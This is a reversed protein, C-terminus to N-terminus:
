EDRWHKPLMAYYATLEFKLAPHGAAILDHNVERGPSGVHCAACTEARTTIEETKILGLKVADGTQKQHPWAETVHPGIWQEAPGHCMECSVSDRTFYTEGRQSHDPQPNHCGFCNALRKARTADDDTSRALRELIAKSLENQLTLYSRSHPDKDLWHVYENRQSLPFRPDPDIGGHCASAACSRAGLFKQPQSTALLGHASEIAFAQQEVPEAALVIRNVNTVGFPAISVFALVAPMASRCARLASAARAPLRLARAVFNLGLCLGALPSVSCLRPTTDGREPSERLREPAKCGRCSTHRGEPGLHQKSPRPPGDYKNRGPMRPIAKTSTITNTVNSATRAASDNHRCPVRTDQLSKADSRPAQGLKKVAEGHCNQCVELKPMLIDEVSVSELSKAGPVLHHCDVCSVDRHSGHDFRSHPLWRTPINPSVIQIGVASDDSAILHCEQCANNKPSAGDGAVSQFVSTEILRLEEEVWRWKDKPAPESPKNPLRSRTQGSSGLVEKPHQNAYNMLRDRLVGHVVDVQEHPLPQDSLKGSFRLPHCSQCHHEFMIPRMYSGADDPEHCNTCQLQVTKSTTSTDTQKDWVTHLPRLHDKHNFRLASKDRWRADRAGATSERFEAIKLLERMMLEDSETQQQEPSWARHVAFEPHKEFSAHCKECYDDAHETLRQFGRHEQHCVACDPVGKTIAFPNHDNKSQHHCHQCDKDRVSRVNNDFSALRVLPQWPTLHCSKCDAQAPEHSTAVPRSLYITHNGQLTFVAVFLLPVLGCVVTVWRRWRHLRNPVRDIHLDLREAVLPNTRSDPM